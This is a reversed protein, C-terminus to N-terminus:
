FTNGGIQFTHGSTDTDQDVPSTLPRGSANHEFSHISETEM